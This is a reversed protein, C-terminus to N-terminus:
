LVKSALQLARVHLGLNIAGLIYADMARIVFRTATVHCHLRHRAFSTPGAQRWCSEVIGCGAVDGTDDQRVCRGAIVTSLRPSYAGLGALLDAEFQVVEKGFLRCCRWRAVSLEVM